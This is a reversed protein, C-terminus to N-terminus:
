VDAPRPRKARTPIRLNFRSGRRPPPDLTLDGGLLRALQRSVSLGLGTGEVERTMPPEVQSFPEFIRDHDESAIGIGTDRVKVIAWDDEIGACVSINGRETFKVANSLLNLLIQRVKGQDTEIPTARSPVRIRFRLGKERALPQVLAATTRVLQGLDVSEVNVQERDAEVRAFSLVQEVIEVLHRANAVIRAVQEKAEETLPEPTGMLLLDAYGVIANLPTRLEHSMVALFESKANSAKVAEDRAHEVEATRDAVKRELTRNLEGLQAIADQFGRFTLEYPSLTESLFEIALRATERSAADTRADRLAEAEVKRHVAAIDLLGLGDAMARRGLEYAHELAAEGHQLLFGRLAGRYEEEFPRGLANM